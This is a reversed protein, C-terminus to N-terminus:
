LRLTTYYMDRVDICWNTYVGYGNVSAWYSSNWNGGTNSALYYQLGAPSQFFFLTYWFCCDLGTYCDLGTCHKAKYSSHHWDVFPTILRASNAWSFLKLHSIAQLWQGLLLMSQQLCGNWQLLMNWYWIWVKAMCYIIISFADPSEVPLFITHNVGVINCLVNSWQTNRDSSDGQLCPALLGISRGRM